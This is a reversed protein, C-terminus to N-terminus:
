PPSCRECCAPFAPRPPPAQRAAPARWHPFAAPRSGPGASFGSFGCAAIPAGRGPRGKANPVPRRPPLPRRLRRARAWRARPVRPGCAWARGPRLGPGAAGFRAPQFFKQFSHLLIGFILCENLLPGLRLWPPFVMFFRIKASVPISSARNSTSTPQPLLLIVLLLLM